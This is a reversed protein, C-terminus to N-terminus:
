DYSPHRPKQLPPSYERGLYNDYQEKRQKVPHHLRRINSQLEGHKRPSPRIPHMERVFKNYADQKFRKQRQMELRERQENKVKLDKELVSSIFPSKHVGQMPSVHMVHEEEFGSEGLASLSRQKKMELLM